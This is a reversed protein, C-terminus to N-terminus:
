EFQSKLKRGFFNRRESIWNKLNVVIKTVARCAWSEYDEIVVDHLMREADIMKRTPTTPSGNPDGYEDDLYELIRELTSGERIKPIMRAYGILEVQEPLDDSLTGDPLVFSECFDFLAEDKNEFQLKESDGVAWFEIKVNETM